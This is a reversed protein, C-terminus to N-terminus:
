VHNDGGLEMLHRTLRCRLERKIKARVLVVATGMIVPVISILIILSLGQSYTMHAEGGRQQQVQPAIEARDMGMM